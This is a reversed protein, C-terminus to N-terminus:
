TDKWRIKGQYVGDQADSITVTCNEDLTEDIRTKSKGVIDNEAVLPFGSGDDVTLDYQLNPSPPIIAISSARGHIGVTASGSGGSVTVSFPKPIYESM